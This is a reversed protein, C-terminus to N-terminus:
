TTSRRLHHADISSPITVSEAHNPLTPPIQSAKRDSMLLSIRHIHLPPIFRELANANHRTSAQRMGLSM